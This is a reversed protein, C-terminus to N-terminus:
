GTGPNTALMATPREGNLGGVTPMAPEPAVKLVPQQAPLTVRQEVLRLQWVGERPPVLFCVDNAVKSDGDGRGDDALVVSATTRAHRIAQPRSLARFRSSTDDLPM